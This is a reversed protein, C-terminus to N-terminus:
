ENSCLAQTMRDCVVNILQIQEDNFDTEDLLEDESNDEDTFMESPEVFEVTPFYALRFKVDQHFAINISGAIVAAVHAWSYLKNRKNIQEFFDYALVERWDVNGGPLLDPNLEGSQILLIPLDGFVQNILQHVKQDIYPVFRSPNIYAIEGSSYPVFLTFNELRDYALFIYDESIESNFLFNDLVSLCSQPLHNLNKM